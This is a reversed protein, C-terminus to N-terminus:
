RQIAGRTREVELMALTTKVSRKDVRLVLSRSVARTTPTDWRLTTTRAKSLLFIPSILVALFTLRASTGDPLYSEEDQSEV